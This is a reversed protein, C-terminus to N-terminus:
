TITFSKTYLKNQYSINSLNKLILTLM